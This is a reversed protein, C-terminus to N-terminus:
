ISVTAVRTLCSLLSLCFGNRSLSAGGRRLGARPILRLGRSVSVSADESSACSFLRRPIKADLLSLFGHSRYRMWPGRISPTNNNSKPSVPRAINPQEGYSAQWSFFLKTPPSFNFSPLTEKYRIPFHFLNSCFQQHQHHKMKKNKSDSM